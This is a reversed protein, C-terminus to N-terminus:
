RIITVAEPNVAELGDVYIYDLYNPVKLKNTLKNEIRWRAQDEMALLLAQPLKVGFNHVPWSYNIYHSKYNFRNSVFKKAEIEKNRIFQSAQILAKLLREVASPHSKIWNEKSILIFYFDQGGQGPWSIVNQGLRNKINYINPEWTFAASIEGNSIAEVIASPKLDVIEVDRSSIGNFTLFRGLFFEGASKRTVGIKKEKLDQIGKIGHDKRAVLKTVEATAVTGLIRLDPNNFSNSVFVFGAATSIDAEGALLADTALKGAEYDKITVDLGNEKFYGQNEAIYVLAGSDGAYAAITVKEVTGTYPPEEKTCGQIFSVAALIALGNVLVKKM